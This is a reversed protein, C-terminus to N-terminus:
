IVKIMEKSNPIEQFGWRRLWLKRARNPVTAVVHVGKKRAWDWMVQVGMDVEDRSLGNSRAQSIFLRGSEQIFSVSVGKLIEGKMALLVLTDDPYLSMQRYLELAIELQSQDVEVFWKRLVLADLPNTTRLFRLQDVVRQIM